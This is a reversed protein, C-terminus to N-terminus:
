SRPRWNCLRRRLPGRMQDADSVVAVPLWAGFLKLAVVIWLTAKVAFGGARATRALSGGITDLLATGGVAWYASILAYAVGVAAAAYGARLARESSRVAV